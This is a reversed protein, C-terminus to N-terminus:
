DFVSISNRYAIKFRYILGYVEIEENRLLINNNNCNFDLIGM